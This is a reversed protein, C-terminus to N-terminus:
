DEEEVKIRKDAVVVRLTLTEDAASGEELEGAKRKKGTCEGSGGDVAGDDGDVERAYRDYAESVRKREKLAAPMRVLELLDDDKTFLLAGGGLDQSVWEAAGLYDFKKRDRRYVAFLMAPFECWDLVDELPLRVAYLELRAAVHILFSGDTLYMTGFLYKPEVFPLSTRWLIHWMDESQWALIPETHGFADQHTKNEFQFNRRLITDHLDLVSSRRSTFTDEDHYDEDPHPNFRTEVAFARKHKRPM